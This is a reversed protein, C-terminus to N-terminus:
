TGSARREREDVAGHQEVLRDGDRHEGPQRQDEAPDREPGARAQPARGARIADLRARSSRRPRRERAGRLRVHRVEDARNRRSSTAGKRAATRGDLSSATAASISARRRAIGLRVADDHELDVAPRDAGRRPLPDVPARPDRRDAAEHDVRLVAARPHRHSAARARWRAGRRSEPEVTQLHLDVAEVLTRKRWASREPHIRSPTRRLAYRAYRRTPRRPETRARRPPGERPIAPTM